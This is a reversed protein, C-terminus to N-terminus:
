IWAKQPSVDFGSLSVFLEYSQPSIVSSIGDVILSFFPTKLTPSAPVVTFTRGRTGRAPRHPRYAPENM